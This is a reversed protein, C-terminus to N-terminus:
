AHRWDTMRRRRSRGPRSPQEDAAVAEGVKGARELVRLLGHGDPASFTPVSRAAWPRIPSDIKMPTPCCRSPRRSTGSASRTSATPGRRPSTPTSRRTTSATTASSCGTIDPFDRALRDLCSRKHGPRQPVLRHQDAGLRHAHAARAPLRERPPLPQPHGRHELRRDLRLRDAGPTPRSSAATCRRWARSPTGPTKGRRVFTNFAAIMPRPLMTTIVTDDIDSVIGHTVGDAVIFVDAAVPDTGQAEVVVQQWGPELGHDRAVIDVHGGRDSRGYVERDGVTVKVPVGTAPSTLFARWGRDYHAPSLAGTADQRGRPGRRAERGKRGLLIRAFVRVFSPSGYGVHTIVRNGWGRSRLVREVQEHVADEVIAAAHPRSM